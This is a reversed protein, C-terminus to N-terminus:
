DEWRGYGPINVSDEDFMGKEADKHCANCQSFSGVKPNGKVMKDAIEDHEHVFYPLKSIRQPAKDSMNRLMRSWKSRKGLPLAQEQLYNSIHTATEKDTEANEGFHDELNLMMKKWSAAPLLNPPYAVHCAGCESIYLKDQKFGQQYADDDDHKDKKEGREYKEHKEHKEDDRDNDAFSVSISTIGFLLIAGLSASGIIWRIKNLITKM